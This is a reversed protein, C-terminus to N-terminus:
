RSLGRIRKDSDPHNRIPRGERATGHDLVWAAHHDERTPVITPNYEEAFPRVVRRRSLRCIRVLNGNELGETGVGACVRQRSRRDRQVRLSRLVRVHVRWAVCLYPIELDVALREGHGIFLVPDSLECADLLLRDYLDAHCDTTG